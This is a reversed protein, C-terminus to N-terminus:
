GIFCIRQAVEKHDPFKDSMDLTMAKFIKALESKKLWPREGEQNKVRISVISDTDHAAEFYDLCAEKKVLNIVESRWKTTLDFRHDESLKGTAEMEALAAVWRLALGNNM